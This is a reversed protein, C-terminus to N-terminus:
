VQYQCSFMIYNSNGGSALDTVDLFSMGGNATTRYTLYMTSSSGIVYGGDPHDGGLSATYGVNVPSNRSSATFPLGAIKIAGSATGTSISDTRMVGYITVLNGIKTYQGFRAGDYTISSFSGTSSELVPSWTGEEYDDLLESTGTGSTASFDIGNGSDVAINGGSVTLKANPSSTGIGINGNGKVLLIPTASQTRAVLLDGGTVVSSNAYLDLLATTGVNFDSEFNGGSANSEIRLGYETNSQGDFNIYAGNSTANRVHLTTSPSNTGIGVRNTSSNVYLTDTDVSLNGTFAATSDDYKATDADYAQVTSGIDSSDLYNSATTLVTNGGNQLTGTFNATTDDYKATDADYGQVTSGIDASKLITADYAQVDVGIELDLNQRATAADSAGTGGNTVALQGTVGSSLDTNGGEVRQWSSGDYLAWDGTTWNTIGGVDTSGDVSVIWFQGQAPSATIDPSNTNANWAGQYSLGTITEGAVTLSGVSIGNEVTLTAFTPNRGFVGGAAKISM